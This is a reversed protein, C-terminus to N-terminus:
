DALGKRAFDVAETLLSQWLTRDVAPISVWERFRRGAPAFPEGDGNDILELVRARPLKVVLASTKEDYSALFRGALRVCPYGMM